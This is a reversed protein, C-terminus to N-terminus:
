IVYNFTHSEGTNKRMRKEPPEFLKAKAPTNRM